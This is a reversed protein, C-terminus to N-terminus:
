SEKNNESKNNTIVPVHFGKIYRGHKKEFAFLPYPVRCYPCERLKSYRFTKYLCIYHFDHNCPLTHCETSMTTKIPPIVEQCILCTKTCVM